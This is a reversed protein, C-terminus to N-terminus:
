RHAKTSDTLRTEIGVGKLAVYSMADKCKFDFGTLENVQVQKDITIKATRERYYTLEESDIANTTLLSDSFDKSVEFYPADLLENNTQTGLTISRINCCEMVAHLDVWQKLNYTKGASFSNSQVKLEIGRYMTLEDGIVFGAARDLTAVNTLSDYATIYYFKESGGGETVSFSWGTLDYQGLNNVTSPSYFGGINSIDLTVMNGDVDDVVSTGGYDNQSFINQYLGYATQITVYPVNAASSSLLALLRGNVETMAYCLLDFQTWTSTFANFAWFKYQNSQTPGGNTFLFVTRLSESAYANAYGVEGDYDGAYPMGQRNNVDNVNFQQMMQGEIQRSAIRVGNDSIAVVGQTTFAYIENNLKTCSNQSRLSVTNDLLSPVLTEPSNGVIRWISNQKVVIASDKLAFIRQIPDSTQGIYIYNLSPVADPNQAKSISVGNPRADNTSILDAGSTPLVPAFMSNIVGSSSTIFFPITDAFLGEIMIQGPSRDYPSVYYARVRNNQTYQNIANCINLATDAINAGTTSTSVYKYQGNPFDNLSADGTINFSFGDAFTITFEPSGTFASLGILTILLNNKNQTNAYLGMDKFLCMDQCIPPQNNSQSTTEQTANTYLDAGRIDDPTIDVVTVQNSNLQASSVQAEYVLKMEDNPPVSTATITTRYVQYWWGSNGGPPLIFSLSVNQTSGSTNSIVVRSSPASYIFRGSETKRYLLIRYATNTNNSLLVGPSGVLSLIPDYPRPMGAYNDGLGDYSLVGRESANYVVGQFEFTSAKPNTRGSAYGAIVNSQQVGDPSRSFDSVVGDAISSVSEITPDILDIQRVANNGYDGVILQCRQDGNSNINESSAIFSPLDFEPSEGLSFSVKGNRYGGAGNPILNLVSATTGDIVRISNNNQDAVFATDKSCGAGDNVCTIGTPSNFRAATGIGNTSGSTGSLSGAFTTTEGTSLNVQRIANNASDAVLALPFSSDFFDISFANDFQVSAPTASNTYGPSLSGCILSGSDTTLNCAYIYTSCVVYLINDTSKVLKLGRNDPIVRTTLPSGTTISGTAGSGAVHVVSSTPSIFISFIKNQDTRSFYVTQTDEDIAIGHCVPLTGLDDSVARILEGTFRNFIYLFYDENANTVAKAAVIYSPSTAVCGVGTLGITPQGQYPQFDPYSFIKGNSICYANNGVSFMGYENPAYADFTPPYHVTEEETFGPRRDIVGDRIQWGNIIQNLTGAPVSISNPHTSVGKFYNVEDVPNTM